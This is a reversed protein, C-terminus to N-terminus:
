NNGQSNHVIEGSYRQFLAKWKDTSYCFPMPTTGPINWDFGVLSKSRDFKKEQSPDIIGLYKDLLQQIEVKEKDSFDKNDPDDFNLVEKDYLPVYNPIPPANREPWGDKTRTLGKKNAVLTISFVNDFQKFGERVKPTLYYGMGGGNMVIDDIIAVNEVGESKLKEVFEPNELNDLPYFKEKIQGSKMEKHLPGKVKIGNAQSYLYSMMAGSKANGAFLFVVKDLKKDPEGEIKDLLQLHLNRFADRTANLDYYEFKDLLKLALKKDEVTEFQGIWQSVTPQKCQTFVPKNELLTKIQSDIEENNNESGFSVPSNTTRQFTDKNLQIKPNNIAIVNNTTKNVTFAQKFTNISISNIM